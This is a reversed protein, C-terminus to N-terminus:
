RRVGFLTLLLGVVVAVGGGIFYWMTEDTFRGTLAEHAQDVFGESAQWGFYLAVIGAVLLAIGLIRVPSM